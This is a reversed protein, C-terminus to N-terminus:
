GKAVKSVSSWWWDPEDSPGPKDPPLGVLEAIKNVLRTIEAEMEAKTEAAEAIEAKLAAESHKIEEELRAIEAAKASEASASANANASHQQYRQRLGRLHQCVARM